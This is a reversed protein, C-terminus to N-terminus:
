AVAREDEAASGWTSPLPVGREHEPLPGDFIRAAAADFLGGCDAWFRGPSVGAARLLPRHDVLVVLCVARWFGAWALRIARRALPPLLALARNLYDVHFALHAAEDRLVQALAARLLPDATGDYVVRYFREGVIEATLLVFLEQRLGLLRRVLIFCADSWHWDLVQGGLRALLRALLRAHEREEEIFLYIARAYAADGTAAAASKLHTGEGQEGVQFRQLSRILPGRLRPDVVIRREWPLVDRRQRNRVFYALWDM